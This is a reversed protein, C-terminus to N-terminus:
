EPDQERIEIAKELDVSVIQSIGQEPMTVGFLRNVRAMTMRHHTIVLFKTKSSKAIEEVLTCFRDVNTDDLPADVEDLVCIPAPNSLFVAFLLSLATLAQEGGSLLTLNQLKKGPPSAYIELGAQLPDTEDTFKLYAKGGGFLQNFLKQFNDNVVGYAALLRQRGETNLSDIAERLKAIAALLDNQDAKINTVKEQLEKAEQEALLNVGGLREQEAILRELRRELDNIDGLKKNPNLEAINFLEDLNANLREKVQTSLQKIAENITAISGEIRIKEERFENLKVEELKLKKNIENASRETEQLQNAIKDYSIKNEEILKQLRIKESTITKPMSRLNTLDKTLNIEREKLEDLRQKAQTFIDIWQKEEKTLQKLRRNKLQELVAKTSSNQKGKSVYGDWRWIEGLNSVLIQGPKLQNQLELINTKDEILGIFDLKKKLNEPAKIITSFKKINDPFTSNEKQDLIRWYNVQEENISAILEDSFVAAVAKEFGDEFDIYDIIPNNNRQKATDLSETDNTEIFLDGQQKELISKEEKVRIINQNADDFLFQERNIDNKIQEIRIQIEEVANNARDIEKEQNDLNITHKQLEAAIQSEKLRLDPLTEQVKEYSINIKAVVQTQNLVFDNQTKMKESADELKTKELEWKRYFVAARAKTIDKQINKYREAQKSQKRLIELQEEQAKLVDKVRELNTGTANLRLEAEHRRSHLGTIGAAEELLTRRQEPKAAIIAGVRGQSVMSTSRAGTAADAFLLQVDKLRVEKGNVRYESGEGRWIRRTVEIEDSQNFLSPAQREANDLDITVEAIDWAPRGATGNFIVDDLESGRMQKPSLEGMVFRFAEVLNSKGCGNPGVIGTLGNEIVIETPEVFSKFGKVRLTKFKIM